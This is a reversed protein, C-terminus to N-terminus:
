LLNYDRMIKLPIQKYLATVLNKFIMKKSSILDDGEYWSWVIMERMSLITIELSVTSTEGQVLASFTIEKLTMINNLDDVKFDTLFSVGLEELRLKLSSLLYNLFLNKNQDM